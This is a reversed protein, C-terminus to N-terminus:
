IAPIEERIELPNAFATEPLTKFISGHGSLFYLLLADRVGPGSGFAKWGLGNFLKRRLERLTGEDIAKAQLEPMLRYHYYSPMDGPEDAPIVGFVEPQSLVPTDPFLEFRNLIFTANRVCSLADIVFEVTEAVDQVTDGPFGAILNVHNGIGAGNMARFIEKVRDRDLGEVEKDMLKLVRPSISELGYLVEYCGAASMAEFLERTHALELKCRCAWRFKMNRRMIEKCFRGLLAPSLAEDTFIFNRYGAAIQAQIRILTAEIEGLSPTRPDDYKLNQVCFTCRSWYCRRNSVRTWLVPEPSFTTTPPSVHFQSVPGATIGTISGEPFDKRTLFGKPTRGAAVADALAPIVSDRDDKSSIVSDFVTALAGSAKLREIHAHLSFNEYGHDSLCAYMRPNSERLLRVAILTCLLDDPSTVSALLLGIKDPCKELANGIIASLATDNSAYAVLARSDSYDLGNVRAGFGFGFGIASQARNLLSLHEYLPAVTAIYKAASEYTSAECLENLSVGAKSASEEFDIGTGGWDLQTKIKDRWGLPSLIAQRVAPVCLARWWAANLSFRIAEHTAAIASWAQGLDFVVTPFRGPAVLAVIRLKQSKLPKKAAGPM